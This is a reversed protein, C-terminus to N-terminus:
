KFIISKQFIFSLVALFPITVLVANSSSLGLNIITKILFWQMVWSLMVLLIYTLPKGDRKFVGYKYTLFGLYNHLIQTFATALGIPLFLLLFLLISQSLITLLTGFFIFKIFSKTQLLNLLSICIKLFSKLIFKINEWIYNDM